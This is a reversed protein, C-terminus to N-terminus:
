TASCIIGILDLILLFYLDDIKYVMLHPFEPSEMEPPMDDKM